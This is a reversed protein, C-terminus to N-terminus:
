FDLQFKAKVLPKTFVDSINDNTLIYQIAVKADEVVEHVFHYQVDIHKTCMHFKNDKVLTIAGQNDCNITLPKGSGARLKHLFSQLWLVEKTM